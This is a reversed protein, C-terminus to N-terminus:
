SARVRQMAHSDGSPEVGTRSHQSTLSLPGATAEDPTNGCMPPYTFYGTGNVPTGGCPMLLQAPPPDAVFASNKDNADPTPTREIAVSVYACSGAAVLEVLKECKVTRPAQDGLSEIPAAVDAPAPESREALLSSSLGFSAIVAICTASGFLLQRASLM